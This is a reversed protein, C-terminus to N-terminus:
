CSCRRRLARGRGCRLGTIRLLKDDKGITPANIRGVEDAHKDTSIEDISVYDKGAIAKVGYGAGGTLRVINSKGKPVMIWETGPRLSDVGSNREIEEFKAM